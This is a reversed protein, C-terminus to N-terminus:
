NRQQAFLCHAATLVWVDSILAGGCYFPLAEDSTIHILVFFKRQIGPRFGNVIESRVGQTLNTNKINNRNNRLDVPISLALSCLFSTAVLLSKIVRM